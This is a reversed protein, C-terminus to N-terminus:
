NRECEFGHLYKGRAVLRSHQQVELEGAKKAEPSGHLLSQILPHETDVCSANCLTSGACIHIKEDVSLKVCPVRHSKGIRSANPSVPSRSPLQLFIHSSSSSFLGRYSYLTGGWIPISRNGFTM